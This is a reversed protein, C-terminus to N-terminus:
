IIWERIPPESEIRDAPNDSQVGSRQKEKRSRNMSEIQDRTAPQYGCKRLLGNCLIWSVVPLIVGLLFGLPGVGGAGPSFTGRTFLVILPYKAVSFGLGLILCVMGALSIRAFGNAVLTALGIWILALSVTELMAPLFWVLFGFQLYYALVVLIVANTGLIAREWFRWRAADSPCAELNSPILYVGVARSVLWITSASIWNGIGFTFVFYGLMLNPYRAAGGVLMPLFIMASYTLVFAFCMSIPVVWTSWQTAGRRMAMWYALLLIFYRGDLFFSFFWGFFLTYFPNIGISALFVQTMAALFLYAIGIAVLAKPRPRCTTSVM